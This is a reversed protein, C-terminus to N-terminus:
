TIHSSNFIMYLQYTYQVKNVYSSLIELSFHKSLHVVHYQDKECM